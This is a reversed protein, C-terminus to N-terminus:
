SRCRKRLIAPTISCTLTLFHEVLRKAPSGLNEGGRPTGAYEFAQDNAAEWILTDCTTIRHRVQLRCDPGDTGLPGAHRLPDACKSGTMIAAKRAAAIAEAEHLGSHFRSLRFGASAIRVM